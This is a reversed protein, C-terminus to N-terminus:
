TSTAPRAPVAPKQSVLSPLVYPRSSPCGPHCGRNQRRKPMIDITFADMTNALIYPGDYCSAMDYPCDPEQAQDSLRQNLMDVIMEKIYDVLLYDLNKKEESDRDRARFMVSVESYQQEKDKDVVIIPQENDTVPERVVQAANPDLTYGKYMEKIQAEIHDVDVDGVIVLGLTTPVTGSTTTTACTRTPSTDVVGILGIPLRKGFKPTLSCPNWSASWCACRHARAWDGSRHIVGREKDIEEDTLLLGNSWDKLIILLCSDIASQRTSPM